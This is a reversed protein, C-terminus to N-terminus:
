GLRLDVVIPRHDSLEVKEIDFGEGPMPVGPSPGVIRAGVLELSGVPALLCHDIARPGVDWFTSAHDGEPDVEKLAHRWGADILDKFCPGLQAHEAVAEDPDANFDGIIVSSTTLAPATARQLWAYFERGGEEINWPPHIGTITLQGLRATLVRPSFPCDTPRDAAVLEARAAILLAYKEEATCDDVTSLQHPLGISGLAETWAPQTAVTIESLVVVDPELSGLVALLPGIRDVADCRGGKYVNWAVIRTM